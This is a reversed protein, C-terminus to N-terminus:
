CDLPIGAGHMAQMQAWTKRIWRACAANQELLSFKAGQGYDETCIMETIVYKLPSQPQTLHHRLVMRFAEKCAALRHPHWTSHWEGPLPKTFPYMIGRPLSGDPNKAWVNRPNNPVVSRFQAFGIANLKLWESCLSGEEFPDLVVRGKEVDDRVGSIEQQEPNEIKFIVHSYDLTFNFKLGAARAMNIVPTVRKYKESWCDVHLEFSVEVGLSEGLEAARRYTDVIQQDSVENGDVTYGHLMVNLMAMRVRAATRVHDTLDPEHRGYRYTCNGTTMPIGTKDSAELCADVLDVPPLWNIYDFVGTDRVMEFRRLPSVRESRQVFNYTCGLKFNRPVQAESSLTWM